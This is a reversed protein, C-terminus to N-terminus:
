QRRAPRIGGLRFLYAPKHRRLWFAFGVGFAVTAVYILPLWEVGPLDSTSLLRFKGAVLVTALALGIAV